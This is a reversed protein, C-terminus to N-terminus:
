CLIKLLNKDIETRRIWYMLYGPCGGAFWIIDKNKLIELVSSNRYDELQVLSVAMGLTNVLPWAEGEKWSGWGEGNAATPVYALKKGKFGGIYENLKKITSPHKAESALFLKM